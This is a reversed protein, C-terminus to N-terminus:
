ANIKNRKRSNQYEATRLSNQKREEALASIESTLMNNIARRQDYPTAAVPPHQESTPSQSSMQTAMSKRNFDFLSAPGVSVKQRKLKEKEEREKNQKQLQNIYGYLNGITSNMEKAVQQNIFDKAVNASLDSRAKM